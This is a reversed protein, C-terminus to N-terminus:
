FARRVKLALAPGLRLRRDDRYELPGTGRLGAYFAISRRYHRGLVDSAELHFSLNAQPNYDAFITLLASAANRDAEDFLYTHTSWGADFTVGWAAKWRPLDEHFNATFEYPKQLSIARAKGTTPDTVRSRRWTGDLKLEAHPLGLSQLPLTLDGILDDERGSGINGPADFL